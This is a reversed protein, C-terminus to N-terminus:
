GKSEEIMGLINQYVKNAEEDSIKNEELVLLINELEVLFSEMERIADMDDESAKEEELLKHLDELYDEVEPIMTAEVVDKLNQKVESM